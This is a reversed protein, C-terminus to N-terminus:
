EDDLMQAVDAASISRGVSLVPLRSGPDITVVVPVAPSAQARLRWACIGIALGIPTWTLREPKSRSAANMVTTIAGVGALVALAERGRRHVPHQVRSVSVAVGAWAVTAAASAWRLQTPLNGPHGGGYAWRGVPAGLAASAQFAAVAITCGVLVSKSFKGTTM